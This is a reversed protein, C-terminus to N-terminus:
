VANVGFNSYSVLSLDNASADGGADGYYLNKIKQGKPSTEIVFQLLEDDESRSPAEVPPLPLSPSTLPFPTDDMGGQPHVDKKIYKSHVKEAQKTRPKLTKPTGEVHHGTVTFYQGKEYMEVDGNKRDKEPLTGTFLAHFGTGSPSIETYTDLDKIIGQAYPEIKGAGDICHDIDNGCINDGATVVFGIGDLDNEPNQCAKLADDFSGWTAPNNTMANKLTSPILPPKKWKGDKLEAKFCVWQNLNKLELPINEPKVTLPNFPKNEQCNGVIETNDVGHNTKTKLPPGHGPSAGKKNDVM